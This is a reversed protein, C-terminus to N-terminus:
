RRGAAFYATPQRYIEELREYLHRQWNPAALDSEDLFVAAINNQRYLNKTQGATPAHHPCHEIVANNYTPLTFDPRRVTRQGDEWVLLPQKYFFPIGYQDLM